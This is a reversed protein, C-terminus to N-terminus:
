FSPRKKFKHHYFLVPSGDVALINEAEVIRAPTDRFWHANHFSPDMEKLFGNKQIFYSFFLQFAFHYPINSTVTDSYEKWSNFLNKWASVRGAQIGTNYQQWRTDIDNFIKTKSFNNFFWELNYINSYDDRCVAFDFDGLTQLTEIESKNMSRQMTVDYDCLIFIDKDELDLFNIFEGTELCVFNKRKGTAHEQISHSLSKPDVTVCEIDLDSPSFGVTILKADMSESKNKLVSKVWDDNHKLFYGQDVNSSIIIRSM